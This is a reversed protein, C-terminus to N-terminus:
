EETVQPPTAPNVIGFNITATVNAGAIDNHCDHDQGEIWIYVTTKVLAGEPLTFQGGVEDFTYTTVQELFAHNSSGVKDYYKYIEDIGETLVAKIGSYAFPVGQKAADVGITQDTKADNIGSNTHKDKNPEYIYAVATGGNFSDSGDYKPNTTYGEVVIAVRVSYDAAKKVAGSETDVNVTIESGALSITKAKGGYNDFYITQALYGQNTGVIETIHQATSGVTATYFEYEGEGLVKELNTKTTSVPSFQINQKGLNVNSEFVFGENAVYGKSILLGGAEGTVDFNIGSVKATTGSTFWAYTVGTLSVVAVVLMLLASLTAKRFNTKKM